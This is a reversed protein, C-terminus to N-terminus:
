LSLPVEEWVMSFLGSGASTIGQLTVATNPQVILMGDLPDEINSSTANATVPVYAFVKWALPIAPLTATSLALGQAGKPSGVLANKPGGTVAANATIAASSPINNVAYVISGAVTCAAVTLSARWVVLSM